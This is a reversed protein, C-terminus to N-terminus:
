GERVEWTVCVGVRGEGGGGGGGGGVAVTYVCM